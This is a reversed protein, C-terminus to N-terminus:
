SVMKRKGDYYGNFNIVNVFDGIEEQYGRRLMKECYHLIYPICKDLDRENELMAAFQPHTYIGDTDFQWSHQKM